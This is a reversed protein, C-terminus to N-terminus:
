SRRYVQAGDVDLLQMQRNHWQTVEGLGLVLHGGINLRQAIFDLIRLRQPKRFYVLMNQTFVLDMAMSPQKNIEIINAQSFCIKRALAPKVRMTGDGQPDFYRQRQQEDLPALRALPYAGARARQIARHSIDTAVISYNDAAAVAPAFEALQQELCIALSYAEEGSACGLSWVDFCNREGTTQSRQLFEKFQAGVFDYSPRHRYFRTEKVVLNEILLTQELRGGVGAQILDYYEDYSACGLASMRRNIQVQLLSRLQEGLDIGTRQELLKRWRNFQLQDLGPSVKLSWSM